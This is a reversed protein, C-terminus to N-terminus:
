VYIFIRGHFIFIRGKFFFSSKPAVVPAVRHEAEVDEEDDLVEKPRVAVHINPRCPRARLVQPRRYHSKSGSQIHLLVRNRVVEAWQKTKGQKQVSKFTVKGREDGEIEQM